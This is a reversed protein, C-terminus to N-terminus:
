LTFHSLIHFLFYITHILSLANTYLQLFVPTPTQYEQPWKLYNATGFKEKLYNFLAYPVLWSKNKTFFKLFKESTLFNKKQAKFIQKIFKM